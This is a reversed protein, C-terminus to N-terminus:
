VEWVLKETHIKGYPVEQKAKIKGETIKQLLDIFDNILPLKEIQIPASSYNANENFLLDYRLSISDNTREINEPVNDSSYKRALEISAHQEETRDEIKQELAELLVSVIYRSLKERKVEKTCPVVFRIHSDPLETRRDALKTKKKPPESPAASPTNQISLYSTNYGRPIETSEDYAPLAPTQYLVYDYPRPHYTILDASVVFTRKDQEPRNMKKTIKQAESLAIKYHLLVSSLLSLSLRSFLRLSLNETQLADACEELVSLPLLRDRRGFCSHLFIRLVLGNRFVGASPYFM